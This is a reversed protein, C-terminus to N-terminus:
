QDDITQNLTGTQESNRYNILLASCHLNSSANFEYGFYFTDPPMRQNVPQASEDTKDYPITPPTLSDAECNSCYWCCFLCPRQLVSFATNPSPSSPQRSDVDSATGRTVEGNKTGIKIGWNCVKGDSSYSHQHLQMIMQIITAVFISSTHTASHKCCNRDRFKSLLEAFRYISNQSNM